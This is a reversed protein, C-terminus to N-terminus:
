KKAAKRAAMTPSLNELTQLIAAGVQMLGGLAAVALDIGKTTTGTTTGLAQLAGAATAVIGTVALVIKLDSIATKLSVLAAKVNGM